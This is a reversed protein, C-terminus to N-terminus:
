KLKKLISAAKAADEPTDLGLYTVFTRGFAAASLGSLNIGAEALAKAIGACAGAKDM